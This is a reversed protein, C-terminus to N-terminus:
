FLDDFDGRRIGEVFTIWESRSYCLVPGDPAKSDGLFIEDGSVALQVCSGANCSMAVHWSLDDASSRASPQM